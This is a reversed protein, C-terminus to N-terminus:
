HTTTESFSSHLTRRSWEANKESSFVFKLTGGQMLEEHTVYSRDLFKSNLQVDKVFGHDESM